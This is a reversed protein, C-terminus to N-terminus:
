FAGVEIANSCRSSPPRAWIHDFTFKKTIFNENYLCKVSYILSRLGSTQYKKRLLGAICIEIERFAGNFLSGGEFKLNNTLGRLYAGVKLM